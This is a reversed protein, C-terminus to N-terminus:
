KWFKINRTVQHYRDPDETKIRDIYELFFALFVAIFFAV